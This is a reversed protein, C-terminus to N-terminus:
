ELCVVFQSETGNWTIPIVYSDIEDPLKIDRAKGDIIVPISILFESGFISRLNGSITNAIEGVLDKIDEVTIEETGLMIQALKELQSKSSTFYVSGKRGGSIGIIGTYELVIRKDKKIYPKGCFASTGSVEQFFQLTTKLIRDIEHENM